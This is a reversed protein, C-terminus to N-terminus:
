RLETSGKKWVACIFLTTSNSSGPVSHRFSKTSRRFNSFLIYIFRIRRACFNRCKGSMMVRHLSIEYGKHKVEWSQGKQGRRREISYGSVFDPKLSTPALVSSPQFRRPPFNMANLHGFREQDTKKLWEDEPISAPRFMMAIDPNSGEKEFSYTLFLPDKWTMIQTDSLFVNRASLGVLVNPFHGLGRRVLIDYFLVARTESSVWSDFEDMQKTTNEEAFIEFLRHIESRASSHERAAETELDFYMSYPNSVQNGISEAIALWSRRDSTKAKKFARSADEVFAQHEPILIPKAFQFDEPLRDHLQRLLSKSPAFIEGCSRNQTQANATAFSLSVLATILFKSVMQM